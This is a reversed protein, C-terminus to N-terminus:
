PLFILVEVLLKDVAMLAVTIETYVTYLYFYLLVNILRGDFRSLFICPV